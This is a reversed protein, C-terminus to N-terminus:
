FRHSTYKAEVDIWRNPLGLVMRESFTFGELIDVLANVQKVRTLKTDRRSNIIWISFDKVGDHGSIRVALRSAPDEDTDHPTPANPNRADHSLDFQVRIKDDQKLDLGFHASIPLRFNGCCLYTETSLGKRACQVSVDNGSLFEQLRALESERIIAM